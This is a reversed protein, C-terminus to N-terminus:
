DGRTRVTECDNADDESYCNRDGSDQDSNKYSPPIAISLWVDPIDGLGIRFLDRFQTARHITSAVKDM